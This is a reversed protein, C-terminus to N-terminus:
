CPKVAVQMDDWDGCGTFVPQHFLTEIQIWTPVPRDDRGRKNKRARLETLDLQPDVAVGASKARRLLQGIFTLHRNRTAGSLGRETSPRQESDKRLDAITRRRDKPSKGYTKHLIRLIIEFADLHHQRLEALDNVGAEETLFRGFLDFIMRAQRAIKEDWVEDALKKEILKTSIAIVGGTHAAATKM